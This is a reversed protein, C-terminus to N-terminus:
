LVGPQASVYGVKGMGQPLWCLLLAPLSVLLLPSSTSTHSRGASAPGRQTGQSLPVAYSPGATCLQGTETRDTGCWGKGTWHIGVAIRSPPEDVYRSTREGRGRSAAVARGPLARPSVSSSASPWVPKLSETAKPLVRGCGRFAAPLLCFLFLPPLCAPFYSLLSIPLCAPLCALPFSAPPVFSSGGRGEGGPRALPAEPRTGRSDAEADAGSPSRRPAMHCTLTWQRHRALERAQCLRSGQDPGAGAAGRLRLGAHLGPVAGAWPSEEM